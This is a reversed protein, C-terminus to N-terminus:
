HRPQRDDLSFRREKPTLLEKIAVAGPKEAKGIRPTHPSHEGCYDDENTMAWDNVFGGDKSPIRKPAHRHCKGSMTAGKRKWYLCNKCKSNDDM